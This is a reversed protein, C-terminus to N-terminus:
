EAGVSGLVVKSLKWDGLHYLRRQISFKGMKAIELNEFKLNL